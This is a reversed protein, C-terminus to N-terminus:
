PVQQLRYFRPSLLNSTTTGNDLFLFTGNSSTISGPVKHWNTSSVSSSWQVFFQSNTTSTWQLLFGNTFEVISDITPPAPVLALGESVRFYAYPSPLPLCYSSTYDTATLTASVPSWNPDNLSAKADVVYHVDPLSSWDICISNSSVFPDSVALNTGAVSFETAMISYAAPAGTVNIVTLFWEGPNLSLPQTFDHVVILEDNTGPNASVYNGSNLNPPPPGKRAVLTVDATPANVEFQLRAANTSAEFRYFDASGLPGSNSTSYPSGTSLTVMEDIDFSAAMSVAVTGSNTNQVGLFYTSGPVLGPAANTRLLWTGMSAGFALALDGANTGTPPSTQNFFVNVPASANLLSNTAFSVWDPATVSYWQLQGPGLLNTSPVGNALSIPSPVTSAVVLSLQWGLLEPPPNTAGTGRDWIELTWEGAPAKGALGSLPEEPLYFIGAEASGPGPAFTHNTFPAPAFKIPVITLNTDETFTLYQPQLATTTVSYHWATSSEPNGDPNMVITFTTANGPGYQVNTSGSFSVSGSDYLLNSEYYVRMEDPLSFFDYSILISGSSRGTEFENTVAQPGGFFDVQTTNTVILEAGMGGTSVGGRQAALLVRAGNPAILSLVLDSIRPHALQVGVAASVISGSNTLFLSSDSVAGETLLLRNTSTYVNTVAPAPALTSTAQLTFEAPDAGLNCSIVNYVGPRLPPDTTQDQILTLSSGSAPIILTPCNSSNVGAQYTELSIPGTGSTMLGSLALSAAGFPVNIFDQRCAGPHLVAGVGGALDPQPELYIWSTVNTAPQNTTVLSLLWQGRSDQGGFQNLNGPGDSPQSGAIDNERSDDYVLAAGTEPGTGSHNQLVVLGSSGQHRLALQLDGAASASLINTVIVRRVPFSDPTVHLLYGPATTTAFTPAPFGRLLENGMSDIQFFPEPSFDVAFNYISGVPSECKVGIYYVGPAANTYLITESGGRGLSMDAQAVAAPDLNTLGPDHSVYLDLDIEPRDLANVPPSHPPPKSLFTLFVANTYATVNTIVYFHWQNTTGVTIVANTSFPAPFVNTALLPEAGGVTENLLLAGFDPNDPGFSNTLITLVKKGKERSAPAAVASPQMLSFWPLDVVGLTSVLVLFILIRRMQVAMM